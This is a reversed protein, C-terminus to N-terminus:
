PVYKSGSVLNQEEGSIRYKLFCGIYFFIQCHSVSSVKRHIIFLVMHSIFLFLYVLIYVLILLTIEFKTETLEDEKTFNIYLALASIM